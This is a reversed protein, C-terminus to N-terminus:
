AITAHWILSYQLVIHDASPGRLVRAGCQATSASPRGQSSPCWRRRLSQPSYPTSTLCISAWESYGRFWRRLPVFYPIGVRATASSRQWFGQVRVELGGHYGGEGPRHRPPPARGLLLGPMDTGIAGRDHLFLLFVSSAYGYYFYYTMIHLQLPMYVHRAKSRHHLTRYVPKPM